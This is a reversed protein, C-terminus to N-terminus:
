RNPTQEAQWRDNFYPFFIRIPRVGMEQWFTQNQSLAAWPYIEFSKCVTMKLFGYNKM